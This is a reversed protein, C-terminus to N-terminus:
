IIAIARNDIDNTSEFDISGEVLGDVSGSVEESSLIAWMRMDPEANVDISFEVVIPTGDYLVSTFADDVHFRSLSGSADKGAQQRRRWQDGFVTADENSAEISYSYERAQGADAMPLFSADITVAARAADASDFIVQGTLRNLEYPEGTAVGGVLVTVPLNRDLIRRAPDTIIYTQNDDTTTAQGTMAIPSGSVRVRALYGAKAM